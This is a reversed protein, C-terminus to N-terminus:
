ENLKKRELIFEKLSCDSKLLNGEIGSGIIVNKSPTSFHFDSGVSELLNYKKAMVSYKSFEEENFYSYSSEIGQLGHSVLKKILEDLEEDNLKIRNPHALVPIGGSNLIVEIASYISVEYDDYNPIFPQIRTLLEKIYNESYDHERLIKAIQKEIWSYNSYNLEEVVCKPIDINNKFIDNMFSHNNHLLVEKMRKLEHLLCKNHPDFDYGLLHIYKEQENYMYVTSLEIGNVLQISRDNQHKKMDEISDINDHDTISFFDVNNKKALKILEEVSYNGDSYLSHCHMDVYKKM